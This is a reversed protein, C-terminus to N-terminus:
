LFVPILVMYSMLIVYVAETRSHATFLPLASCHIASAVGPWAKKQHPHRL